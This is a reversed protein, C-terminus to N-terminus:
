RPVEAELLHVDGIVIDVAEVVLETQRALRLAVAQRVEDAMAPVFEGRLASITVEVRIPASPVDVEGSLACSIVVAGDISDGAERILGRVAGETMHLVSQADGAAIPIDRGSRAELRVRAMVGGFWSPDPPPVASADDDLVRGSLVRLRELTALQSANQPDDEIAPDYPRRGSDLYDALRELTVTDDSM